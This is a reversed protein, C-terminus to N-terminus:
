GSIAVGILIISTIAPSVARKKTIHIM